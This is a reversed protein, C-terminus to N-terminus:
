SRGQKHLIVRSTSQELAQEFWGKWYGAGLCLSLKCHEELKGATDLFRFLNDVDKGSMAVKLTFVKDRM